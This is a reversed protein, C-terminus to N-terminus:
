GEQMFREIDEITKPIGATLVENGDETVLIDDEIRVGIDWYEPPVDETDKSIYISPEVALVMGPELLRFQGNIKKEGVDHADMGLPHGTDHIYFKKSKETEILEDVEGSLFGFEVLGETIVRIARKHFDNFRNGPKIAEIAEIQAELVINYISKQIDSFKGNAPMTRTVDAAYYQYEAAADILVLANDQIQCNNATYHLITSNSGSGVITAFAPGVAGNKRFTYDILAELEYEYMGPKVAKMAECHAMETIKAAKRMLDIEDVSKFLRMEHLIEGTDVLTSLRYHKILDVIKQNFGEDSGVRYYIKKIGNLYKALEEDLKDIPYVEDAEFQQKAGEVGARKGYWREQEEDKPRVFLVFKHEEHTPTLLCLANPEDFGTLYYFSKDPLYKRDKVEEPARFIAVGGDMKEMFQKRRDSHM